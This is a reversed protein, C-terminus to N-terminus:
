LTYKVCSYTQNINKLGNHCVIDNPRRGPRHHRLGRDDPQSKAKWKGNTALTGRWGGMGRASAAASAGGSQSPPCLPSCLASFHHCFRSLGPIVANKFHRIAVFLGIRDRINAHVGHRLPAAEAASQLPPHHRPHSPASAARKVKMAISQHDNYHRCICCDHCKFLILFYPRRRKNKQANKTAREKRGKRISRLAAAKGM